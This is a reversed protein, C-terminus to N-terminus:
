APIRLRNARCVTAQAQLVLIVTTILWFDGPVPTVTPDVSWAGKRSTKNDKGAPAKDGTQGDIHTVKVERKADCKGKADVDGHLDDPYNYTAENDTSVKEKGGALVAGSLVTFLMLVAIVLAIGKRIM